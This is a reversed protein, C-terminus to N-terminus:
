GNGGGSTSLGGGGATLGAGGNDVHGQSTVAGAPRYKACAADAKKWTPSDPSMGVKNIDVSLQGNPQPDPFKPVGNARMCKAMQRMQELQAASPKPPQGGNPAYQRCAQQAAEFKAQEGKPVFFSLQGSKPDPFSTMGHARM